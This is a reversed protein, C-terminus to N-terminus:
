GFRSLAWTPGTRGTLQRRQNKIVTIAQNELEKAARGGGTGSIDIREAPHTTIPGYSGDSQRIHLVGDIDLHVPFDGSAAKALNDGGNPLRISKVPTGLVRAKASHIRQLAAYLEGETEVLKALQKTAKNVM